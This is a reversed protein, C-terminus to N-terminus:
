PQVLGRLLVALGFEFADDARVPRPAGTDLAATLEPGVEPSSEWPRDAILRAAEDKTLAGEPPPDLAVIQAQWYEPRPTPELTIRLWAFRAFAIGLVLLLAYVAIRLYRPKRKPKPSSDAQELFETM